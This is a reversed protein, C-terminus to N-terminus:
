WVLINYFNLYKLIYVYNNCILLWDWRGDVVIKGGVDRFLVDDFDKIM